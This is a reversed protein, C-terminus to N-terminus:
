LTAVLARQDDWAAPLPHHFLYNSTLGVPQRGELIARVIDPALFAYGIAKQVRVTQIGDETAIEEYTKGAKIRDLWSLANGINRLLTRDVCKPPDGLVLKTEVGRKRLRFPANIRLADDRIRDPGVPLTAAFADRDLLISLSGPGLDIRRILGILGAASAHDENRSFQGDLCRDVAALEELTPDHILSAPFTAACVHQRILRVVTEELMPAPLRWGSLDQEGSHKILRRSVYYRLRQGSQKQTHSPTLRDGTEDFLKGALLSRAACGKTSRRRRKAAGAQLQTQVATWVDPDIIPPHQGEHVRTRHRIRGAYIPSTLLHHLHGRQFPLGGTRTEDAARREKTRLGLRDAEAKMQRITGYQRYLAYLTRVTEAEAENIRLTRGEQDYGLPVRGGMWLGKRKSAAIKDRIREATVEREFQAFSLLMHLTLRGMSTATNFSQTVSVFCTGAANLRDVIKAFDALSRTLRDIKYVVIQDVLGADIDALLRQLGPREMTGGSSGGDEYATPLLAWGEATQSAVYAACAERQADLANFAQELGEESSKRTYIACRIKPM